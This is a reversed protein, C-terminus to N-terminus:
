SRAGHEVSASDFGKVDAAAAFPNSMLEAQAAQPSFIPALRPRLRPAARAFSRDPDGATSDPMSPRVLRRLAQKDAALDTDHERISGLRTALSGSRSKSPIMQM